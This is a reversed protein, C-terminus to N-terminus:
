GSIELLGEKQARVAADTRSLANMKGLINAVHKNVTFISLSLREAIEKDAVGGAVLNLVTFERFTLGYPNRRLMKREVQGELEEIERRRAEAQEERRQATYDRVIALLEEGAAPVIRAEFYREVGDAEVKYEFTQVRRSLRAAALAEAFEESVDPPMIEILKRGLFKGVPMMPEVGKGPSFGVCTGDGAITFIMDPIAEVLSQNRSAADRVEAELLARQTVDRNVTVFGIISGDEGTLAKATVEVTISRGDRRLQVMQDRFERGDDLKKLESCLGNGSYPATLIEPALRGIAEQASWGYLREAAGNWSSLRFDRDMGVIADDAAALLQGQHELYAERQERLVEAAARNAVMRLMIEGPADGQLPADHVVGVHGIPKGAKDLLPVALYAEAGLEALWSAGPFHRVVDSPFYLLQGRLVDGCPTGSVAYEINETFGTGSWHALLRVRGEREDVLESIFAHRTQLAFALHRVLNAFLVRSSTGVEPNRDKEWSDAGQKYETIDRRGVIGGRLERVLPTATLLYWHLEDGFWRSYESVWQPLAGDLVAQIGHLTEETNADGVGQDQRWLHFFNQGVQTHHLMSPHDNDASRKWADNVSLIRGSVDLVAVEDSLIELLSRNLGEAKRMAQEAHREAERTVRDEARHILKIM